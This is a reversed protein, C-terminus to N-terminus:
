VQLFTGTQIHRLLSLLPCEPQTTVHLTHLCLCDPEPWTGEFHHLFCTFAQKETGVELSSHLFKADLGYVVFKVQGFAHMVEYTSKLYESSTMVLQCFCVRTRVTLHLSLKLNNLLCLM